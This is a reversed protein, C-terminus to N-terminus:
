GYRGVGRWGSAGAAHTPLGKEWRGEEELGFRIYGESALVRWSGLWNM